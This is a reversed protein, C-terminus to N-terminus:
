LGTVLELAVKDFTGQLAEEYKAPDEFESLPSIQGSTGSFEHQGLSENGRAVSITGAVSVAYQNASVEILGHRLTDITIQADGQGTPVPQYRGAAALERSITSRLQNVAWTNREAAMRAFGTARSPALVVPTQRAAPALSVTRVNGPLQKSACAGTVLALAVAFLRFPVNM